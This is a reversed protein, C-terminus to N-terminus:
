IDASGSEFRVEREACFDRVFREERDSEEARLRHNFHAVVISDKPHVRMTELLLYM